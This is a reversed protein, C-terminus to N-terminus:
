EFRLNSEEDISYAPIQDEPEMLFVVPKGTIGLGYKRGLETLESLFEDVKKGAFNDAVAQNNM